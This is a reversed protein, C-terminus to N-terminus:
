YSINQMYILFMKFRKPFTKVVPLSQYSAGADLIYTLEETMIRWIYIFFGRCKQM